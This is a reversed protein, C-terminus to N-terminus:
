DDGVHKMMGGDGPFYSMVAYVVQCLRKTSEYEGRGHAEGVLKQVKHNAHLFTHCSTDLRFVDYHLESIILAADGCGHLLSFLNSMKLRCRGEPYRSQLNNSPVASYAPSTFMVIM